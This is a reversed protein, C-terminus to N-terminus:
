GTKGTLFVITPALLAAVALVWSVAASLRHHRVLAATLGAWAAVVATPAVIGVIVVVAAGDNNTPDAAVLGLPALVLQSVSYPAMVFPVVGVAGLVASCLVVSGHGLAPRGPRGAVERPGLSSETM